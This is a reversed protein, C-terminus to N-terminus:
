RSLRTKRPRAAARPESPGTVRSATSWSRPTARKPATMRYSDEVLGAVEDWDVDVGLRVGIWGKHGVYPPVFFREPAAGVLVEQAGAPAKCWLAVRDDGHDGDVFMAFIKERVRFTPTEWTVKETVQPLAFCITRLRELQNQRPPRRPTSPTLSEARVKQRPLKEEV